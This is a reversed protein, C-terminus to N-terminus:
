VAPGAAQITLGADVPYSVGTIGGAEDSALWTVLAAVQEPRLIKGTLHAAAKAARIAKLEEATRPPSPRRGPPASTLWTATTGEGFMQLFSSTEVTSPCVACARIGEPGYEIATSRTLSMVGAKAASYAALGPYPQMGAVSATNVIVGGGADAMAPVAYKTGLFASTLTLRLTENWGLVTIDELLGTEMGFVNNHLISLTGFERLALEVMGAAGEETAVDTVYPVASGGAATIAAAVREAATANKDVAVVNAGRAAFTTATAEGIGSGAGTVVATKGAFQGGLTM